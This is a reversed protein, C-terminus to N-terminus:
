MLDPPDKFRLCLFYTNYIIDWLNNKYFILSLNSNKLNNKPIFFVQSEKSKRYVSVSSLM